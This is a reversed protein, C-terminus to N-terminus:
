AIHELFGRLAHITEPLSQKHPMHGCNKLLLLEVPGGSHDAIFRPFAVSGYEDEEGHIVLLPCRVHDIAPQLSWAQFEASLWVDTWAQLVWAAKKGHWKKLRDLQGPQAFMEQAAGIGQLTRDEVFAQASISIVSQCDCDRAAINIAMGGGVSHGLLVFHALGLHKKIAPFYKSAEEAIFELSPLASRADSKGFGLRDYAIVTRSLQGALVAPFDRWLDVSGLSDHLLVLPIRAAGSKPRWRKVFVSGGPVSVNFEETQISSM